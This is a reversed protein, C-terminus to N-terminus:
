RRFLASVLFITGVLIVAVPWFTQVLGWGGLFSGFIMFLVLSSLLTWGAGILLGRKRRLLGALLLGIGVFGPILTWAYAWSRWEGSQNQLYLLGGIGAVLCAPIMWGPLWTVLGLLAMLGGLALIQLPWTEKGYALARVAPSLEAALFWGGLAILLLALLIDSRRRM